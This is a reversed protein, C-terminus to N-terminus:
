LMYNIASSGGLMKGRIVNHQKSKQAAVQPTSMYNWDYDPNRSM